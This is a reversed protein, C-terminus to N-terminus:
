IMLPSGMETSISNPRVRRCEGVIQVAMTGEAIARVVPQQTTGMNREGAIVGINMRGSLIQPWRRNATMKSRIIQSVLAQTRLRGTIMKDALVVITGAIMPSAM